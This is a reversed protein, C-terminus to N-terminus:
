NEPGKNNYTMKLIKVDYNQEWIWFRVLLKLTLFKLGM